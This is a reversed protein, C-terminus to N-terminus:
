RSVIVPPLVVPKTEPGEYGLMKAANPALLFFKLRLEARATGPPVPYRIERVEAPTLTNNRVMKAAFPALAPKGEADVYGRNFVAEPHEKMPEAKINRALETGDAGLARIELLAMRGPFGTPFAHGTRNELRAVLMEGELRGTIGLAEDLIGPGSTRHQLHPGAFRHSRHSPRTVVAGSPGPTEKMHCSVCTDSGPKAAFEIGTSCTTVGAPNKEEGHCSLCLTVGDRIAPVAPGTGHAPSAGEAVDRGGRFRREPGVALARIGKRDEGPHAGEIQHCTACTVGAKAAPSEHDTLDRPTHCVACAAPIHPGQKETRLARLAGYLPDNAHHSRSHLSDAFEAVVAAHCPACTAPRDPDIVELTPPMTPGATVAQTTPASAPPTSPPPPANQCGVLAALVLAFAHRPLRRPDRDFMGPLLM